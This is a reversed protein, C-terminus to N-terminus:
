KRIFINQMGNELLKQTIISLKLSLQSNITDNESFYTCIPESFYTLYFEKVKSTKKIGGNQRKNFIFKEKINM